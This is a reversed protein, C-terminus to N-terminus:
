ERPRPPALPTILDVRSVHLNLGAGVRLGPVLVDPSDAAPIALVETGGASFALVGEERRVEVVYRHIGKGPHRMVASDPRWPVLMTDRGAHRAMVGAQGDPRVLFAIWDPEPGGAAPMALVIGWGEKGPEDFVFAEVAVGFRGSVTRSTAVLTVGANTTTVHWGPPMRQYVPGAVASDNGSAVAQPRDLHITWDDAPGASQATLPAASAFSAVCALAALTAYRM